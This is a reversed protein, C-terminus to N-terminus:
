NGNVKASTAVAKPVSLYGAIKKDSVQNVVLELPARSGGAYFYIPENISKNKKELRMDDVYLAVTFQHKKPNVGRLEVQMSGVRQKQGKSNLTFEYYDKEGM